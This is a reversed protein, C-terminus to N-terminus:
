IARIWSKGMDIKIGRSKATGETMGTWAIEPRTFLAAPVTVNDFASPQGCIV